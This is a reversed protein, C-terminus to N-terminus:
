QPQGSQGLLRMEAYRVVSQADGVVYLVGQAAGPPVVVEQEFAHLEPTVEFTESWVSIFNGAEDNWNIQFRGAAAQADVSTARAVVKYHQGPTVNFKQAFVNENVAGPGVVVGDGHGIALKYGDGWSGQQKFLPEDNVQVTFEGAAPKAPANVNATAVPQAPKAGDGSGSRDCASLFAMSICGAVLLPTVRPRYSQQM